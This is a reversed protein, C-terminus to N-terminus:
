FLHKTKQNHCCFYFSSSSIEDYPFNREDYTMDGLLKCNLLPAHDRIQDCEINRNENNVISLSLM